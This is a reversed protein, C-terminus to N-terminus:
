KYQPEQEQIYKLRGNLVQLSDEFTKALQKFDQKATPDETQLEFTKMTAAASQVGAIAQQMQTGVTM